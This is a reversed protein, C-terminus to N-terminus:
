KKDVDKFIWSFFCIDEFLSLWFLNDFTSKNYRTPLVKNADTIAILERKTTKGNETISLKGKCLGYSSKGNNNNINKSLYNHRIRSIVEVGPMIHCM